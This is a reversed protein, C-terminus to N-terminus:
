PRALLQDHARADGVFVLEDDPLLTTEPQGEFVVEGRRVHALYADGLTRLGAQEVTQGAFPADPAGRVALQDAPRGVAFGGAGPGPLLRHGVLAYYLSVFLVPPLGVWTLDFCGFGPLGEAILLGHVVVNTSTGILTLWGGVIAATSLPMLLKPAPLGTRRAWAQVRPILMAVIPTNNLIGSFVATPLMLRLLAPGPRDSRPRLLGDLWGLAGTRE